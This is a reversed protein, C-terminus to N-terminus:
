ASEALPLVEQDRDHSRIFAPDPWGQSRAVLLGIYDCVPLGQAKAAAELETKREPPIAAPIKWRDGKPKPGRPRRGTTQVM